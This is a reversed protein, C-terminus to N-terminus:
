NFVSFVNRCQPRSSFFVDKVNDQARSFSSIMDFGKLATVTSHFHHMYIPPVRQTWPQGLASKGVVLEIECISDESGSLVLLQVLFPALIKRGFIMRVM